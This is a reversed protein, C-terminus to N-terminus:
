GTQYWFVKKIIPRLLVLLLILWFSSSSSSIGLTFISFRMKGISNGLVSWSDQRTFISSFLLYISSVGFLYEQKKLTLYISDAINECYGGSSGM